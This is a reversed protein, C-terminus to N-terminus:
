KECALWYLVMSFWKVICFSNNRIQCIQLLFLFTYMKKPVYGEYPLAIKLSKGYSLAIKLLKGNPLATRLLRGYTLAIKFLKGYPLAIGLLKGYHLAIKKTCMCFYNWKFYHRVQNQTLGSPQPPLEPPPHKESDIMVPFCSSSPEELLAPDHSSPRVRSFFAQSLIWRDSVRSCKM